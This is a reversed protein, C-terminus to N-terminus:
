RLRGREARRHRGALQRLTLGTCPDRWGPAVAQAPDLVFGRQRFHRHPVVLAGAPGGARTGSRWSGGQWLVIDLDLVRAGWRQGGGRRGFEREVAKLLALLEPPSLPSSVVAVGNAYRRLSPGLPASAIIPSAREIVVAEGLRVLAASIVAPPLGHRHHRMNSGLAVLYRWGQAPALIVRGRGKPEAIGREAIKLSGAM